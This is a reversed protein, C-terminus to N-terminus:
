ETKLKALAQDADKRLPSKPYKKVFGSFADKADAKKGASVLAMANRFAALEDAQISAPKAEGKWYLDNSKVEAGRVGGVATTTSLNNQPTLQEIKMRLMEWFGPGSDDAACFAPYSLSLGLLIILIRKM